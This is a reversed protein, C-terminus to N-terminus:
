RLTRRIMDAAGMGYANLIQTCGQAAAPHMQVVAEAVATLTGLQNIATNALFAAGELKADSVVLEASFEALTNGTRKVLKNSPRSYTALSSGAASGNWRELNSM